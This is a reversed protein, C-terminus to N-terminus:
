GVADAFGLEVAKEASLWRDKAKAWRYLEDAEWQGGTRGAIIGFVQRNLRKLFKVEDEMEHLKGMVGSSIEHIMLQSEAGVLRQDGAQLLIAGMSAAFGRVVTTIPNGQASITRLTDYFGLGHFASGGPTNLYLTIRKGENLHAFRQIRDGYFSCSEADVYTRFHFVGRAEPDSEYKLRHERVGRENRRREEKLNLEAVKTEARAKRLELEKRETKLASKSM